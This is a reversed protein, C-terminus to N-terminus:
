KAPGSGRESMMSPNSRTLESLMWLSAPSSRSLLVRVRTMSPLTPVGAKEGESIVTQGAQKQLRNCLPKQLEDELFRNTGGAPDVGRSAGEWRNGTIMPKLRFTNTRMRAIDLKAVPIDFKVLPIDLKVLPIDLKVVPTNLKVVPTNLEVVPPNLKVLPINLKVVQTNLKVVAINFKGVRSNLKVRESALKAVLSDLTVKTINLKVTM